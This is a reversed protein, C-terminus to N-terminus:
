CMCRLAQTSNSTGCPDVAPNDSFECYLTFVASVALKTAVIVGGAM